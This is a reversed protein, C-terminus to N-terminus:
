VYIFNSSHNIYGSPSTASAIIKNKQSDKKLLKIIVKSQYFEGLSAMHIWYFNTENVNLDLLFERLESYSKLKGLFATRIKMNFLSYVFFYCFM